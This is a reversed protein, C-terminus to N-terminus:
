GIKFAILDPDDVPNSIKYVNYTVEIANTYETVQADTWGTTNQTGIWYNSSSTSLKIKLSSDVLVYPNTAASYVRTTPDVNLQSLNKGNLYNAPILLRRTTKKDEDSLGSAAPQFKIQIVNSGMGFKHSDDNGLKVLNTKTDNGFSGSPASTVGGAQQGASFTSTEDMRYGGSGNGTKSYFVPAYVKYTFNTPKTTTTIHYESNVNGTSLGSTADISTTENSATKRTKSGATDHVEETGVNFSFTATVARTGCSSLNLHKETEGTETVLDGTLVPANAAGGHATYSGAKATAVNVTYDSTAPTQIYYNTIPTGYLIWSTSDKAVSTINTGTKTGYKFTFAAISADTFKPAYTTFLIKKLIDMATMGSIDMSKTLYGVATGANTLGSLKEEGYGEGNVIIQHTDTTFYVANAEKNSNTATSKDKSGIFSVSSGTEIAM